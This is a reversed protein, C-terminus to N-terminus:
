PIYIFESTNLLMHCLQTLAQHAAQEPPHKEATFHATLKQLLETCAQKENASPSRGLVIQWATEMRKGPETTGAEKEVREALAAAQEVVVPDNLMALSQLVVASSERRTCNM